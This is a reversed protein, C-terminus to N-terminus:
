SKGGERGVVFSEGFQPAVFDSQALGYKEKAIALDKVPQEFSEDALQFTQFHIGVSKRSRLQLHAAVAEDPDVHVRQMFWRPMYAGIPIMSLDMPGFKDYVQKFHKGFATDGAFFFKLGRAEVVFSGWLTASSDFLSRQSFHQAPVFTIKVGNLNTDQWWDLTQVREAIGFSRLHVDNGLGAIFLPNHDQQLMQLTHKDMHDYHDHSIIVVDIKPLKDYAIGPEHVRAPGAWSVPSARYSYHPDTLINLGGTQILVTAHNIFTVVVQNEAPSVLAKGKSPIINQPWDGREGTLRWQLFAWLSQRVFHDQNIFRYGDFHDSVPGYYKQATWSFYLAVVIILTCVIAFIKLKM